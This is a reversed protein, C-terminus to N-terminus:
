CVSKQIKNKINGQFVGIVFMVSCKDVFISVNEKEARDNPYQWFFFRGVKGEEFFAFCSSFWIKTFM